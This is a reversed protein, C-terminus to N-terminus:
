DCAAGCSPGTPIDALVPGVSLGPARGSRECGAAIDCAALPPGYRGQDPPLPVGLLTFGEGVLELFVIDADAHVAFPTPSVMDKYLAEPTGDLIILDIKFGVTRHCQFWPISQSTCRDRCGSFVGIGTKVSYRWVREVILV